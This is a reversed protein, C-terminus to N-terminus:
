EIIFTYVGDNVEGDSDVAQVRVQYVTGTVAETDLYLTGGSIPRVVGNIRWEINSYGSAISVYYPDNATVPIPGSGSLPEPEGNAYLIISTDDGLGVGGNFGAKVYFTFDKSYNSLAGQANETGDTITARLVLHNGTQLTFKKAANLGADDLALGAGSTIISWVIATKTANSPVVRARRLDIETGADYTASDAIGPIAIDTVQYTNTITVDFERTFNSGAAAGNVIAARLKLTGVATPKFPATATASLGVGAERLSWVITTNSADSPSVTVGSLDLEEKALGAVPVNSIETVAVFEWKAYITTNANVPDAFNWVTTGAAEKHWGMFTQGGKTPDTEPRAAAGGRTLTQSAVATGDGTDFSVTVTWKAYLTLNRTVTDTAFDWDDTGAADKHWGAFSCNALTPDTAPKAIADGSLVNTIPAVASGPGSNFTVTYEPTWQAHIITNATVTDTEFNWENTGTAEKHWGAFRFGDRAPDTGPRAITSGNAVGTLPPIVSGQASFTVTWLPTWGAYLTTRAAVTDTAFDWRNTLATEKYWADFVYNTRTPAAPAAVTDGEAVVQSEVASGGRSNFSVVYTGPLAEVWKAYLTLAGTVTDSEFDWPDTLGSNKHWGELALIGNVPTAPEVAKEGYAVTQSAVAGGGRSDFSVTYTKATWKAYLTMNGTVVGNTFDWAAMDSLSAYWGNFDYGTKAPNAPPRAAAAGKDVAQQAPVPSGGRADFSVVAQGPQAPEWKAYLTMDKTVSSSFQWEKTYDEDGYWGALLYNEKIPVPSPPAAKGNKAVAQQAPAPSGGKADFSVVWSGAEVPTWRAYLTMNKTVRGNVFDWAAADAEQSVYWKDFLLGAKTVTPEIARGGSAVSQSPAEGGGQSDFAVTYLAPGTDSTPNSCGAVFLLAMAILVSGCLIKRSSFM